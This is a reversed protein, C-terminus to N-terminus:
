IFSMGSCTAMHGMDCPLIGIGQSKSLLDLGNTSDQFAPYQQIVPDAMFCSFDVPPNKGPRTFM